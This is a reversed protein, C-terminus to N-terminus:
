YVRSFIESETMHEDSAAMLIEFKNTNEDVMGAESLTFLGLLLYHKRETRGM